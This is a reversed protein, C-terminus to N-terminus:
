PVAGVLVPEAFDILRYDGIRRFGIATYARAAEDSAAFLVARRAGDVRAMALHQAVARRAFGRGRLQVPTYVGGVQAAEPTRANFATMALPVEGDCLLAATGEALFREAAERAEDRSRDTAPAGLVEIAYALRWRTMLALDGAQVIRAEGRGAPLILDKLDMAYHPDPRDLRAPRDTLGLATRLPLVAEDSGNIGRIRRNCLAEAVAPWLTAAGDPDPCVVTLFGANSLSVALAARGDARGLWFRAAHPHESPGLGFRHLASAMFMARDLNASVFSALEPVLDARVQVVGSM